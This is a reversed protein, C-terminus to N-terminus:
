EQSVRDIEGSNIEDILEQLLIEKRLDNEFKELPNYM